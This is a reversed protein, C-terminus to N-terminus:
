LAMQLSLNIAQHLSGGKLYPQHILYSLSVQQNVLAIGGGVTQRQQDSVEYGYSALLRMLDLVRVSGSLSVMQEPKLQEGKTLEEFSRSDKIAEEGLLEGKVRQRHSYDLHTTVDGNLLTYAFGARYVRPSLNSIKENALNEASIGFRLSPTLLGALGLGVSTGRLVTDTSTGRNFGEVYQIGLGAALRAFALGFGLSFRQKTASDYFAQLRKDEDEELQYPQYPEKSSTYTLGTAISSTKSDVAGLQYFNRGYSPWNYTGSVTYHKEFALMAPNNKVSSQGSVAAVGGGGFALSHGGNAEYEDPVRGAFGVSSGLLVCSGLVLGRSFKGM